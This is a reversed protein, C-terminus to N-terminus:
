YIRVEGFQELETTIADVDEDTIIIATGLHAVTGVAGMPLEALATASEPSVLGALESFLRGTKLFARLTPPPLPHATAASNIIEHWGDDKLVDSTNRGGGCLCLVLRGDVPWTLVDGEVGPTRRQVLRTGPGDRLAAAQATVDGLGTSHEIESQHAAHMARELGVGLELCAALATAGSMGMGSGVPLERRIWFSLKEPSDLVLEVARHTVPDKVKDGDETFSISTRKAPEREVAAYAGQTLCIGLGTSGHLLPEDNPHIHFLTSVHAPVFSM